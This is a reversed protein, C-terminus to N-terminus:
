ATELLTYLTLVLGITRSDTNINVTVVFLRWTLVYMQTNTTDSQRSSRYDCVYLQKDKMTAIILPEVLCITSGRGEGGMGELGMTTGISSDPFSEAYELKQHPCPGFTLLMVVVFRRTVHDIM